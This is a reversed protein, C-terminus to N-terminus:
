ASSVYSFLLTLNSALPLSFALQLPLGFAANFLNFTYTTLKVGLPFFIYDSALPSQGLDLWSFKFWWMNWLFTSEDFAWTPEGPVHTTLHAALPWTLWLALLTYLGIVILHPRYQKSM